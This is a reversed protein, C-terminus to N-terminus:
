FDGGRFRTRAEATAGIQQPVQRSLDGLLMLTQDDQEDLRRYDTRDLRANNPTWYLHVV